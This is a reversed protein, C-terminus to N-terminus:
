PIKGYWATGTTGLQKAQVNEFMNQMYEGSILVLGYSKIM